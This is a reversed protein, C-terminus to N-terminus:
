RYPVVTGDLNVTAKVQPLLAEAQQKETEPGVYVRYWTSGSISLPEPAAAPLGALSLRESLDQARARDQFSGVQVVWGSRYGTPAV